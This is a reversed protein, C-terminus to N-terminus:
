HNVSLDYSANRERQKKQFLGSGQVHSMSWVTKYVTGKILTECQANGVGLMFGGHGESLSGSTSMEKTQDHKRCSVTSVSFIM